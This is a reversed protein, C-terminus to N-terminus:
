FNSLIQINEIDDEDQKRKTREKSFRKQKEKQQTCCAVEDVRLIDQMKYLM